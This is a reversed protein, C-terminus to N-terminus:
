ISKLIKVFEGIRGDKSKNALLIAKKILSIGEAKRKLKKALLEGQNMYTTMLGWKDKARILILEGKKHMQLAKALQGLDSLLLAQTEYNYALYLQNGLLTYIKEEAKTLKLAKKFQGTRRLILAQNGYGRAEADKNGYKISIRIEKDHLKLAQEYQGMIKLLIAQNGYSRGIGDYDNIERCLGESEKLLVMADNYRGLRKLVLAKNGISNALSKKNRLRKFIKIEKEHMLLAATFNGQKKLILAMTSYAIAVNLQSAKKNNAVNMLLRYACSFKDIKYLLRAKILFIDPTSFNRGSEFCDSIISEWNNTKWKVGVSKKLICNFLITLDGKVWNINPHGRFMKQANKNISRASTYHPSVGECFDWYLIKCLSKKNSQILHQVYQTIDFHDSCSYGIILLVRNKLSRCFFRKIVENRLTSKENAVKRITIALSRINSICGHIKVLYRQEQLKSKIAFNEANKYLNFPNPIIAKEFCQDFNTTLIRSIKGQCYLEALCEHYYSPEANFISKILKLKLGCELLTEVFAEFPMSSSSIFDKIQSNNFGLSRLIQPVIGKTIVDKKKNYGGVAPIGSPVSIGAGCFIALNEKALYRNISQIVEM